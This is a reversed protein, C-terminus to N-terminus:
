LLKKTKLMTDDVRNLSLPVPTLPYSLVEAMDVKRELSLFLISGSLDM